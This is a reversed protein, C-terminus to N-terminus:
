GRRSSRWASRSWSPTSSSGQGGTAGPRPGAAGLAAGLAVGGLVDLPLHAGVYIRALGVGSTLAALGARWRSRLHPAAVVYLTAAVAAHGSPYGLGRQEPRAPPRGRHPPESPGSGGPAQGGQRGGLHGHGAGRPRDGAAPPRLRGRCRGRGAPRRLQGAAHAALRRPVRGRPGTSPGSAGPRWARCRGVARWSPAPSSPPAGSCSPPARARRCPGCGSLMVWPGPDLLPGSVGHM